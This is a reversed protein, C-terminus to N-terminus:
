SVPSPQLPQLTFGLSKAQKRLSNERHLRQQNPNGLRTSDFPRLYKVVAWIV